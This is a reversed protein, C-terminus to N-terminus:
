KKKKGKIREAEAKQKANRSENEKIIQDIFFRRFFVPMNWVDFFNFGGGHKVLSYIEEM